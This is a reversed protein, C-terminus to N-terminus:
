QRNYVAQIIVDRIFTFETDNYSKCDFNAICNYLLEISASIIDTTTVNTLDEDYYEQWENVKSNVLHKIEDLWRAEVNDLKVHLQKM